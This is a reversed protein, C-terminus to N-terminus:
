VQILGQNRHGSIVAKCLIKREKKKKKKTPSPNSSLTKCKCLLHDEAQAVGGVWYYM